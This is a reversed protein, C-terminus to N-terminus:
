PKNTKMFWDPDLNGSKWEKLTMEASHRADPDESNSLQKLAREAEKPQLPLLNFAAWCGVQPLEHDLLSRFFSEGQDDRLRRIMRASRIIKDHAKNSLRFDNRSSSTQFVIAAEIYREEPSNKRKQMKM